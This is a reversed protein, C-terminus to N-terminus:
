VGRVRTQHSRSSRNADFAVACWSKVVAAVQRERPALRSLSAFFRHAAVEVAADDREAEERDPQVEVEVRM